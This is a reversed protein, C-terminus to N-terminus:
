REAHGAPYVARDFGIRRDCYDLPELVVLEQVKVVHLDVLLSRQDNRRDLRAIMTM